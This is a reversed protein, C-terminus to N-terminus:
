QTFPISLQNPDRSVYPLDFDTPENWNDPSGWDWEQFQACVPQSFKGFGMDFTEYSWEAPFGKTARKLIECRKNDIHDQHIAKEHICQCCLECTFIEISDDNDDIEDDHTITPNNM